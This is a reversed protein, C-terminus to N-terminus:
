YLDAKFPFLSVGVVDFYNIIVSTLFFFIRFL